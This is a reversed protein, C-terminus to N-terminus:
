REKLWAEYAQFDFEGKDNTFSPVERVEEGGGNGSGGSAPPAADLDRAASLADIRGTLTKITENLQAIRPDEVPPEAAQQAGLEGAEIAHILEDTLYSQVRAATFLPEPIRGIDEIFRQELAAADLNYKKGVEVLYPRVEQELVQRGVEEARLTELQQAEPTTAPAPTGLNQQYQKVLDELPELDGLATRQLVYDWTQREQAAADLEGLATQLKESLTNRDRELTEYQSGKLHGLQANRVVEALTKRQDQGVARYGLTAKTLLDEISLQRLDEVEKDDIFISFGDGRLPPPTEPTEPTEQAKPEAGDQDGAQQQGEPYLSGYLERLAADDEASDTYLSSGRMETMFQDVTPFDQPEAPQKAPQEAPQEVVPATNEDM